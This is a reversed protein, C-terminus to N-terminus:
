AAGKCSAAQHNLLQEAIVPSSHNAFKQAFHAMEIWLATSVSILNVGGLQGNGPNCPHPLVQVVHLPRPQV